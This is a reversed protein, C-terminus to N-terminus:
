AVDLEKPALSRYDSTGLGAKGGALVTGVEEAKLGLLEAGWADLAVADVGAAVMLKTQVDAANGGTPGHDTLIRVADLICIQPKMFRTLDVLCTPINQHFKKRDEIIGMYNKMCGTMKTLRHNKVIPVNIFLDCEQTQPHIPISKVLEGKIDTEKFRTRDLTLVEAGAKKAAEAVGSNAYAKDPPNCPNDGIRVSKAGAELCKKIITAVVDPNTNAALDPTRDWSMNPKIFVISGKKVFRGMGGLGEIAQETLRVAIARIQEPTPGAEGKWRAIAMRAEDAPPVALLDPGTVALMGAAAASRAMFGRRSCTWGM